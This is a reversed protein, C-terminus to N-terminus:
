IKEDAWSMMADNIINNILSEIFVVAEERGIMYGTSHGCRNRTGLKEELLARANRNFVGADECLQLFNKDNLYLLDNKKGIRRYSKSTGFRANNATEMEKFGSPRNEIASYIHEVTAAWVMLVAGRYAGHEYCDVAENLYEQYNKPARATADRLSHLAEAPAQRSVDAVPISYAEQFARLREFTSIPVPEDSTM